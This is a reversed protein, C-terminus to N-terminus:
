GKKNEGKKNYTNERYGRFGMINVYADKIIWFNGAQTIYICKSEKSGETSIKPVKEGFLTYETLNTQHFLCTPTKGASGQVRDRSGKKFM